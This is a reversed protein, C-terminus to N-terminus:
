NTDIRNCILQPIDYDSNDFSEYLKMFSLRQKAMLTEKEIIMKIDRIIHQRVFISWGSVSNGRPLTRVKRLENIIKLIHDENYNIFYQILERDIEKDDKIISGYYDLM